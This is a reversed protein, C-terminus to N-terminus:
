DYKRENDKQAALLLYAKWAAREKSNLYGWVGLQMERGLENWCTRIARIKDEEWQDSELIWRMYGARQQAMRPDVELPGSPDDGLMDAVKVM